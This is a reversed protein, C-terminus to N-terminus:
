RGRGDFRGGTCRRRRDGGPIGARAYLQHKVGTDSDVTARSAVEVVLALHERVTDVDYPECDRVFIDPYRM